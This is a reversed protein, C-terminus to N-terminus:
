QKLMFCKKIVETKGNVSLSYFYIGDSVAKGFDDDGDWITPYYGTIMPQDILTKVKQGKINYITLKIKSDIFLAFRITTSLNFPNPHNYLQYDILPPQHNVSSVPEELFNGDGNNILFSLTGPNIHGVVIDNNADNDIDGSQISYTNPPISYDLSYIFKISLILILIFLLRTKM